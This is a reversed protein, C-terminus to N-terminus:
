IFCKMWLIEKCAEGTAIYEAKTTSLAVCKHLVKIALKSMVGGIFTKLYGSTFKRSDLDRAIDLYTYSALVSKENRFTLKLSSTGRLYRM